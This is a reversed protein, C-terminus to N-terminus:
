QPFARVDIRPRHDSPESASSPIVIRCGRQRCLSCRCSGYGTDRHDASVAALTKSRMGLSLVPLLMEDMWLTEAAGDPEDLDAPVHLIASVGKNLEPGALV